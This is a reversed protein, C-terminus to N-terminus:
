CRFYRHRQQLLRWLYGVPSKINPTTSSWRTATPSPAPPTGDLDIEAASTNRLQLTGKHVGVAATITIVDGVAVPWSGDTNKDIVAKYLQHLQHRRNVTINPSSYRAMKTM